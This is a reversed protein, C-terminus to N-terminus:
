AVPLSWTVGQISCPTPSVFNTNNNAADLADKIDGQEARNPDGAPTYQDALAAVAAATLADISIFGAPNSGDVNPAYVLSSGSVQLSEVNLTMAALQVSLM